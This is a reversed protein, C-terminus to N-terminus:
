IEARFEAKEYSVCQELLVVPSLSGSHMGPRLVPVQKVVDYSSGTINSVNM